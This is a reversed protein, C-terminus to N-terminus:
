DSIMFIPLDDWLIHLLLMGFKWTDLGIKLTQVFFDPLKNFAGHTYVLTFLHNYVFFLLQCSIISCQFITIIILFCICIFWLRSNFLVYLTWIGNFLLTVGTKCYQRKKYLNHNEGQYTPQSDPVNKEIEKRVNFLMHGPKYSM